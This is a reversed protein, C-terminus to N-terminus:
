HAFSAIAQIIGVVGSVFGVWFGCKALIGEEVTVKVPDSHSAAQKFVESKEAPRRNGAPKAEHSSGLQARFKGTFHGATKTCGFLFGYAWNGCAKRNTTKARCMVPWTLGLVLALPVIAWGILESGSLFYDHRTKAVGAVILGASAIILLISVARRSQLTSMRAMIGGSSSEGLHGDRSGYTLVLDM